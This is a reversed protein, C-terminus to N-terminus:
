TVEVVRFMGMAMHMLLHCHFAWKGRADATVLFSLQEAPKVIITHKYPRRIGHGNELESWLGHLHIPHEMMTDNILTFRVREGYALRIPESESYKKGDFGWMYRWMNGTLHLTIQRSPPRPDAGDERARLESYRLVRRGNNELGDGPDDLRSSTMKAINDVGVKGALGTTDPGMDMNGTMNGMGMDRMDLLPRPDLPPIPARLGARVALTGCAFGSRDESQAFITYADARPAVIVDYTEAPAIRFEDVDIPDVDNGDAAIIQMTLGPIRVDFFSMSAANIFRLKIRESATFLGTWNAAPSQGNMLYTYTAGTVDAIDTPSMRMKGWNLRDNLTAGWGDKEIDHWLSGLTRQQFNYVDSSFKLRSLIREPSQDSWDSLMVVHERDAVRIEGNRPAIIIPGYLGTQEQMGTHSHYWYTGYQHPRFRYTFSDGPAIGPFSLGPVGDMAAPTRVGHWHISSPTDLRNTVRATVWDGQRWRLLPGPVSGNVATAIAAHGTFDVNLRDITLEYPHEESNEDAEARIGPTAVAAGVALGQVFTRRTLKKM